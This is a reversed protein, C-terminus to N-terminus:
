ASLKCSGAIKTGNKTIWWVSEDVVVLYDGHSSSNFSREKKGTRLCTLFPANYLGAVEASSVSYPPGLSEKPEYSLTNLFISGQPKLWQICLDVYLIRLKHPLAVLAARDYIVDVQPILSSTFDFIDSVWISLSDTNYCRVGHSSDTSFDLSQEKFFQLVAQESLEIGIVQYGQQVFWLMDLSKGCLPILVTSKPKISRTPWLALLDPHVENKHFPISGQQWADLWFQKGKKV